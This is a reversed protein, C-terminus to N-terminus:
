RQLEHRKLCLFSKEHQDGGLGKNMKPRKRGRTQTRVDSSFDTKILQHSPDIIVGPCFVM